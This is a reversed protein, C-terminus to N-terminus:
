GTLFQRQFHLTPSPFLLQSITDRNQNWNVGKAQGRCGERAMELGPEHQPETLIKIGTQMELWMWRRNGLGTTHCPHTTPASYKLNVSLYPLSPHKSTGLVVGQKCCTQSSHKSSPTASPRIVLQARCNKCKRYKRRKYKGWSVSCCCPRDGSFAHSPDWCAPLEKNKVLDIPMVPCLSSRECPAPGTTLPSPETGTRGGM